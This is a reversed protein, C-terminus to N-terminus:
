KENHMVIDKTQPM